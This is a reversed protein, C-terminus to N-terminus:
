QVNKLFDKAKEVLEEYSGDNIIVYDYIYNLVQGDSLNSQENNEIFPRRILISEAGLEEKFRQIEKPERSDIFIIPEKTDYRTAAKISSLKETIKKMPVDDWDRLLAKLDSLFKRNKPTKKGDWGCTTAVFKVFDVTSLIAVYGNYEGYCINEFTTKGSGPFGNVIYIKM